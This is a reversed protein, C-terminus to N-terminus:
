LDSSELLQRCIAEFKDRIDTDLIAQDPNNQKPRNNILAYFDIEKLDPKFGGGWINLQKSGNKILEQECDSHWEGGGALIGQEIDVALKIHSKYFTAMDGLQRKTAPKTIIHIIPLEDQMHYKSHHINIMNPTLFFPRPPGQDIIVSHNGQRMKPLQEQCMPSLVDFIHQHGGLM